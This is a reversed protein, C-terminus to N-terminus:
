GVSERAPHGSVAPEPSVAGLAQPLGPEGPDLNGVTGVIIPDTAAVDLVWQNDELWPSCEVAIAGTIGLPTAIRRYRDPLAPQYLVTERKNPWPVGQPRRPDFQHIHADIIPMSSSQAGADALTANVAAALFTRRNVSM